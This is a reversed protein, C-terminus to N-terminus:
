VKVTAHAIAKREEDSLDFEHGKGMIVRKAYWRMGSRSHLASIVIGTDHSDVLALTFSQDGGTDKFPNFRILGIKKIHLAGDRELTDCRNKLAELEKKLDSLESFIRDLVNNITKKDTGATLKNYNTNYRYLILSLALLWNIGIFLAVAEFSFVM